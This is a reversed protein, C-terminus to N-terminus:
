RIALLLWSPEIWFLRQVASILEGHIETIGDFVGRTSPCQDLVNARPCFDHWLLLAGPGALRLAKRTDSVVVEPHHGGDILVSDFFGDPYQSDDWKQSDSYIQCVRNGFGRELYRSGIAGRADTQVVTRGNRATRTVLSKASADDALWDDYAWRGTQDAEGELLNITWVSAHCEELCCLTGDGRWTGFELHRRPRHQAFLYRLIPADDEEMRWDLLSKARSDSSPAFAHKYKLADHLQTAAVQEINLGTGTVSM